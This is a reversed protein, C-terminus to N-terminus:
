PCALRAQNPTTLRGSTTHLACLGAGLPMLCGSDDGEMNCFEPDNGWPVPTTWDVTLPNFDTLYLKTALSGYYPAHECVKTQFATLGEATACESAHITPM